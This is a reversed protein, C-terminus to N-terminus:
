RQSGPRRRRNRTSPTETLSASTRKVIQPVSASRIPQIECSASVGGALERLQFLCMPGMETGRQSRHLFVDESVGGFCLVILLRGQAPSLM